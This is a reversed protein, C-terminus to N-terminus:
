QTRVRQRGGLFLEISGLTGCCMTDLQVPWAKEAGTIANDVDRALFNADLSGKFKADCVGRKIMAVRSLGIGPAGHCWQCRFIPGDDGRIDPWNARAMDYSSNEFAICEAAAAAFDERGTSAALSALAYAYGAAGHLMGNLPKGSQSIWSRRGDAGRRPLALLHEGCKSARKLVSSSESDRYLRLLGLIAGASGGMADLQSDAAILDDTFLEAARHADATLSDDCLCKAMVALAYVISGLGAGAGVGLWRAMRAANRDRLRKRLQAVAALALEKSQERRAVAAHSALFVAIGTAGGYLDFGLTVLQSVESDGLWDRGIWAAGPGRRVAYLTLDEAIRDAEAIFLDMLPAADVGLSSLERGKGEAPRRENTRSLAGTSQRIIACQWAIDREDFNRVRERARYLGSIATTRVWIHSSDTMTSGDSPSVFHPVNLALLASREARHLPWLPDSDNEWDSLRAIFDAQTSWIVGDDMTRHNKLRQLLMYYFRTPRIIRRVPLGAFRDFLDTDRSVRKLFIAYDEFGGVFDAIHDGLRAYGGAIQPLNPLRGGWGKSRAPRMKDTNIDYWSVKARDKWGSTMGGAAFVNNDPMKGYIPLLGVALVSHAVAQMAVEFAEAEPENSKREDFTAQLVMELDIPVPHDGAAILNEQHMDASAFCHFLALWAGARRFFRKTDCPPYEAHNIFETSGYCDGVIVRMAKLTGPPADANNLQQVLTYWAADLRLDKPKYVVRSGDEFRVIQVSHGGNHPDSLDGEIAMVTSPASTRLIERRIADLDTDLRLAFERSTNIWQRTTVAILRLLVPKEEFLQRLGGAKLDAIFWDYLSGGDDAQQGGNHDHFAAPRKRTKAFREYLAPACLDSLATVLAHRLYAHASANLNRSVRAAIGLWLRKEAQEALAVFLAEFPCPGLGEPWVIADSHKSVGRLAAEIWIADEIWTPTAAVRSRGVTALRTLVNTITLGDRELRRAFLGWDSSACSRCWAALRRGAQDADRKQGPLPEFDDSLLEDITSALVILREFFGEM